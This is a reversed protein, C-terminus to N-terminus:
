KRQLRHSISIRLDTIPKNSAYNPRKTPSILTELKPPNQVATPILSSYVMNLTKDVRILLTAASKKEIPYSSVKKFFDAAPNNPINAYIRFKQSIYDIPPINTQYNKHGIAM